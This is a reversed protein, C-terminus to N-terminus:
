KHHRGHSKGPAILVQTNLDEGIRRRYAIYEDWQDLPVKNRKILLRREATFVGNTFAYTSHYEAWDEVIDVGRPPEMTWGDPLEVTAQYVTEGTAGLEPDDAPKNEKIGPPLEGGM